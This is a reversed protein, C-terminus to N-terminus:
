WGGMSKGFVQEFISRKEPAPEPGFVILAEIDEGGIKSVSVPFVNEVTYDHHVSLFNNVAKAIGGDRPNVQISLRKTEKM